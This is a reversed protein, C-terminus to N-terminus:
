RRLLALMGALWVVFLFLGGAVVPVGFDFWFPTDLMRVDPAANAKEVPPTTTATSATSAIVPVPAPQIADDPPAPGENRAPPAVDKPTLQHFWSSSTEKQAAPSPEPASAPAPAAAVTPEAPAPKAVPKVAIKLTEAKAPKITTEAAILPRYDAPLWPALAERVETPNAFRQEKRKAMMKAVIAVFEPPIAPNLQAIPTPEDVRHRLLKQLANGGPFPAQRTLTYYLTCGLSYIDSRVDVAFADEAQEPALYDLTGVVYGQGGVVTRDAAVEGQMLALGLDLVKAHDDLTIAINSPKLDRHILGQGHAHELGLAIETFLRAARATTLIGQESILKHLNKGAIYEMAIFNVGDHVGVEFTKAIHPHNVRQSIEMERKFRALLREEAKARKPPLVKVAVLTQSRTDRALFVAGMGGKGIPSLLHFAGLVLGVTAGQLLKNAQFRSLKGLKVLHDAVASPSKLQDAPLKQLATQLQQASLVGSRMVTKLFADVTPPQPEAGQVQPSTSM